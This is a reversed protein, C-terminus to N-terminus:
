ADLRAEYPVAEGFELARRLIRLYMAWCFSSIRWHENPDPWGVHHFRVQTQEGHGDLRFGVRTGLWDEDAKVIELEFEVPASARSVHGRWDHNPGFWLVYEEGVVARGSSRKTWWADLGRPTSVAEYVRERPAKIPFDHYIDAM